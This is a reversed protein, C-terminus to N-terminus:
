SLDHLHYAPRFNRSKKRRFVAFILSFGFHEFFGQFYDLTNVYYIFIGIKMSGRCITYITPPGLIEIQKKSFFDFILSFELNEFFGQFLGLTNGSHLLMGHKM